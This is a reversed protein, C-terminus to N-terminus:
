NEELETLRFMGLARAVTVGEIDDPHFLLGGIIDKVISTNLTFHLAGNREIHEDLSNVFPVKVEKFLTDREASSQLDDYEAWKL